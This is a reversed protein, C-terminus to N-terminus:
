TSLSWRAIDQRLQRFLHQALHTCVQGFWIIEPDGSEGRAGRRGWVGELWQKKLMDLRADAYLLRVRLTDVCVEQKNTKNTFILLAHIHNCPSAWSVCCTLQKANRTRYLSDLLDRNQRM